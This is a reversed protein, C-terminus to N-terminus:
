HEDKDAGDDPGDLYQDFGVFAGAQVVALRGFALGHDLACM